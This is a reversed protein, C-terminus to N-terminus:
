VMFWYVRQNLNKKQGFDTGESVSGLFDRSAAFNRWCAAAINALFILLLCLLLLLSFYVQLPLVLLIGRILGNCYFQCLFHPQMPLIEGFQGWQLIPLSFVLLMGSCYFPFIFFIQTAADAFNRWGAGAAGSNIPLLLPCHFSLCSAFFRFCSCIEKLRGM